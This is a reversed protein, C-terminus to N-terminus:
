KGLDKYTETLTTALDLLNNKKAQEYLIMAEEKSLNRLNTKVFKQLGNVLENLNDLMKKSSDIM